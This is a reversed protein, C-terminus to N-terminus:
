KPKVESIVNGHQIDWRLDNTRGGRILFEELTLGPNNIIIQLSKQGWSGERRPNGETCKDTAWLILGSLSKGRGRKTAVESSAPQVEVAPAEASTAEEEVASAETEVSPNTTESNLKTEPTSPSSAKALQLQRMATLRKLGTARDSFKKVEPLGFEAAILNYDRLLAWAAKKSDPNMEIEPM